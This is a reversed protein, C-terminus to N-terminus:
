WFELKLLAREEAGAVQGEEGVLGVVEDALVEGEDARAFLRQDAVVGVVEQVARLQREAVGGEGRAEAGLRAAVALRRPAYKEEM